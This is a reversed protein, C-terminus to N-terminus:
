TNVVECCIICVVPSFNPYHHHITDLTLITITFLPSVLTDRTDRLQRPFQGRKDSVLASSPPDHHWWICLLLFLSWVSDGSPQRTGWSVQTPNPFRVRPNSNSQKKLAPIQFSLPLTSFDWYKHLHDQRQDVFWGGKYKVVQCWSTHVPLPFLLNPCSYCIRAFRPLFLLKSCFYCIQLPNWNAGM